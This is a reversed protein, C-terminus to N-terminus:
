TKPSSSSPLLSPSGRRPLFSDTGLGGAGNGSLVTQAVVGDGFMLLVTTGFFEAVIERMFGRMRHVATETRKNTQPARFQPHDTLPTTEFRGYKNGCTM